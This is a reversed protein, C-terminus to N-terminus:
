QIFKLMPDDGSSVLEILRQRLPGRLQDKVARFAPQSAMGLCLEMADANLDKKKSIVDIVGQEKLEAPSYKRGQLMLQRLLTPPLVSRIIELPGAPFPVGARAEPMGWYPSSNHLSAVGDMCLALVMGGGLAAGNVAAVTPVRISVLEATMSSISLIMERKTDASYSRFAKVDVGACFCDGSATLIMGTAADDARVNAFERQLAQITELDLANVPPRELTLIVVGNKKDALIM